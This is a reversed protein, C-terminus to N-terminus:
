RVEPAFVQGIRTTTDSDAVPRFAIQWGDDSGGIRIPIWADECRHVALAIPLLPLRDEHPRLAYGSIEILLKAFRMGDATSDTIPTARKFLGVDQLLSLSEDVTWGNSPRESFGTADEPAYGLRGAAASLLTVQESPDLHDTLEIAMSELLRLCLGDPDSLEEAHAFYADMIASEVTDFGHKSLTEFVAAAVRHCFEVFERDVVPSHNVVPESLIGERTDHDSDCCLKSPDGPVMPATDQCAIVDYYPVQPDYRRLVRRYQETVQTAVRATARTDFRLDAAPVPPDGYRGCVLYYDGDEDALSEIHDHIENLTTGIM